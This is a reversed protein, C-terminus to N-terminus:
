LFFLVVFLLFPWSIRDELEIFLLQLGPDDFAARAFGLPLSRSSGYAVVRAPTCGFVGPCYM